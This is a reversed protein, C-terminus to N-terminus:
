ERRDSRRCSAEVHPEADEVADDAAAREGGHQEDAVADDDRDQEANERQGEKRQEEADRLGREGDHQKDEPRPTTAIVAIM